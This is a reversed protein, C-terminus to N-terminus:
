DGKYGSGPLVPDHEAEIVEALPRVDSDPDILQATLPEAGDDGRDLIALARARAGCLAYYDRTWKGTVSKVRYTGPAYGPIARLNTLVKDLLMNETPTLNNGSFQPDDAM